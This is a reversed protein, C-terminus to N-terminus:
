DARELKQKVKNRYDENGILQVQFSNMNNRLRFNQWRTLDDTLIVIEMQNGDLDEAYLADNLIFATSGGKAGLHAYFDKNAENVEMPWEMIDRVTEAAEDPLKDNSIISLLTGYDSASAGPLRDSWVRQVALPLDISQSALDIEGNKLRSSIDIAMERYNAVPMAELEEVAASASGSEGGAFGPILLPSVIPYVPEHSALGLSEVRENIATLGLLHMLYETNANSSYTIMGKVVEHLTVEDGEIKGADEMAELWAPHAGGDTDKAYFRNLEALPVLEEPDLLGAEAQMAYEAAIPIKVTSALPRVADAQYAVLVEGNRAVYLSATEPNKKLHNLVYDPNDRLM